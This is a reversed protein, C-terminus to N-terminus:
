EEKLYLLPDLAEGNKTLKFYLNCGEKTFYKTPPAVRGIMDGARVTDSIGVNVDKLQGYTVEYGDGIAIKITTGTENDVYVERVVGAAACKVDMGDTTSIMIAPNCKYVDLTPFYITKDMNFGMLIDGKVPWELKDKESFSFVPANVAATEKLDDPVTVDVTIATTTEVPKETPKEIRYKTEKEVKKTEAVTTTEQEAVNLDIYNKKDKDKTSSKVVSIIGATLAAIIALSAILSIIKQGDPKKNNKKM